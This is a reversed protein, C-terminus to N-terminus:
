RTSWNHDSPGSEPLPQATPIAAALKKIKRCIAVANSWELAAFSLEVTREGTTRDFGFNVVPICGIKTSAQMDLIELVQEIQIESLQITKTM